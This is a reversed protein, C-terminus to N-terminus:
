VRSGRWEGCEWSHPETSADGAEGGGGQADDRRVGVLAAGNFSRVGGDHGCRYAREGCEWSHPETSAMDAQALAEEM